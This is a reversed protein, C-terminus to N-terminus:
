QFINLRARHDASRGAPYTGATSQCGARGGEPEGVPSEGETAPRGLGSPQPTPALRPAQVGPLLRTQAGGSESAAVRPILHIDKKEEPYQSTEIGRTTGRPGLARPHCPKAWAPNGWESIPPDFGM